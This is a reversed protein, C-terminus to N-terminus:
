SLMGCVFSAKAEFVLACCKLFLPKYFPPVLISLLWPGKVAIIEVKLWKGTKRGQQLKSPDEQWYFM